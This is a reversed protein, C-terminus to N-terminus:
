IKTLRPQDKERRRLLFNLTNFYNRHRPNCAPNGGGGKNFPYIRVRRHCWVCADFYHVNRLKM